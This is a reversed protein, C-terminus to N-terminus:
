LMKVPVPLLDNIMQSHIYFLKPIRPLEARKTLEEVIAFLQTDQEVAIPKAKYM